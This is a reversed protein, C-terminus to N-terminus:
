RRSLYRTITKLKRPNLEFLYKRHCGGDENDAGAARYALRQHFFELML